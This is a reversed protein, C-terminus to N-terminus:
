KGNLEGLDTSLVKDWGDQSKKERDQEFKKQMKEVSETGVEDWGQRKAHNRLEKTTMYKGTAPQYTKQNWDAASAKDISQRSPM